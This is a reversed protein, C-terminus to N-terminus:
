EKHIHTLSLLSFPLNESGLSFALTPLGAAEGERGGGAGAKESLDPM